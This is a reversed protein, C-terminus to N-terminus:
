LRASPLRVLRGAATTAGTTVRVAYVGPAVPRGADDRGDWPLSLTGGTAAGVPAELARVRRGAADLITARIPGTTAAAVLRVRLMVNGRSPNPWAGAFALASNGGAEGTSTTASGDFEIDQPPLGTWTPGPLPQLTAVDFVRIGPNAPTRDCLWLEGRDNAEADALNFGATAYVATGVVGTARDYPKCVTNFSADSLVVFGRGDSAPVVDAVDGGLAVETTEIADVALALPDIRVVGGDDAGYFGTCGVVLRGSADVVLETTPNQFPLLIGQVGPAAADCDVLTDTAPDIVIVASSDTPSFIADRDNRQVTVFVRGDALAMRNMEPVGDADAFAALSIAGLFAGTSPDVIWLDASDYRAVYAKTPSVVVVDNPNAGNGVSFQRVVQFGNAPDLVRVNDCGFREIVYLLGQHHRLVADSCVGAVNPTAVPPTGFAVNALNGSAFDTAYVFGRSQAAEATPVQVGLALASTVAALLVRNM